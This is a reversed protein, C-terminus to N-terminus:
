CSPLNTRWPTSLSTRMQAPSSMTMPKLPIHLRLAFPLARRTRTSQLIELNTPNPKSSPSTQPKSHPNLHLAPHISRFRCVQSNTPTLSHPSSAPCSLHETDPINSDPFKTQQPKSNICRNEPLQIHQNPMRNM